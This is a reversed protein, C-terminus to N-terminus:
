LAISEARARVLERGARLAALSREVSGGPRRVAISHELAEVPVVGSLEVLAGLAVLNAGIATGLVRQATATIPLGRCVAGVGGAPRVLGDDFLLLGSAELQGVYRDHAEQTLALLVDVRDAYPYAIEGDGIIVESKSAGGRSEPGYAQTQTANRGSAVAAEALLLGALVVGQGGAGALRIRAPGPRSADGDAVTKM